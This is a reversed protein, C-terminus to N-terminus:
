GDMWGDLWGPNVHTLGVSSPYFGANMQLLNMKKAMERGAIGM